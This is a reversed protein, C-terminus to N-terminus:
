KNIWHIVVPAVTTLSGAAAAVVALWVKEKTGLKHMTVKEHTVLQREDTELYHDVFRNLLIDRTQAGDKMVTLELSGQANRISAVDTKISAIDNQMSEAKNAAKEQEAEVEELRPLIDRNILADHEEIKKYMCLEDGKTM